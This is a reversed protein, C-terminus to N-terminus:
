WLFIIELLTVEVKRSNLRAIQKNLDESQLPNNRVDVVCHQIAPNDVLAMLDNLKNKQLNLLQLQSLHKPLFSMDELQDDILHLEKLQLLYAM